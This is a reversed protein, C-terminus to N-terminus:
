WSEDQTRARNWLMCGSKSASTAERERAVLYNCGLMRRVAERLETIRWYYLFPNIASNALLITVTVLYVSYVTSSSGISKMTIVCCLYPLYCMLFAGYVYLMSKLTKKYQGLNFSHCQKGDKVDSNHAQLQANHAYLKRAIALYNFTAFTLCLCIIGIILPFFISSNLAYTMGLMMAVLWLVFIAVKMRKVKVVGRYKLGLHVALFRDFSIATITLFSLTALCGTFSSYAISLKCSLERNVKTEAVRLAIYLPQCILGVGLDSISLSCLLLFSPTRLSNRLFALIMVLNGAVAVFSCVGNIVIEAIYTSQLKFAFLVSSSVNLCLQSSM